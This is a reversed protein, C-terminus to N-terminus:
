EGVCISSHAEETATVLDTGISLEFHAGRADQAEFSRDCLWSLDKVNNLVPRSGQVFTMVAYQQCLFFEIIILLELRM